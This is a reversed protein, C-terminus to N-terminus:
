TNFRGVLESLRSSLAQLREAESSAQSTHQEGTQSVAHIEIVNAEIEKVTSQQQSM